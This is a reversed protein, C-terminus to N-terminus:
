HPIQLHAFCSPGSFPTDLLVGLVCSIRIVAGDLFQIMQASVASSAGSVHIPEINALTCHKGYQTIQSVCYGSGWLCRLNGYIWRIM